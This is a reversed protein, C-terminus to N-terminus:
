KRGDRWERYYIQAEGFAYCLFCFVFFTMGAAVTFEFLDGAKESDMVRNIHHQFEYGHERLTM